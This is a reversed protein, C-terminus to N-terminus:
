RLYQEAASKKAVANYSSSFVFPLNVKKKNNGTLGTGKFNNNGFCDMEVSLQLLGM